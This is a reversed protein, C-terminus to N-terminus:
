KPNPNPAYTSSGYVEAPDEVLCFFLPSDSNPAHVYYCPTKLPEAGKSPKAWRQRQMRQVEADSLPKAVLKVVELEEESAILVNAVPGVAAPYLEYFNPCPLAMPHRGRRQGMNLQRQTMPAIYRQPVQQEVASLHPLPPASSPTTSHSFASLSPRTPVVEGRGEHLVDQSDSSSSSSTNRQLNVRGGPRRKSSTATSSSSHTFADMLRQMVKM